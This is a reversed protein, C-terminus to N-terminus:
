NSHGLLKPQSKNWGQLPISKFGQKVPYYIGYYLADIMDTDFGTISKALEVYGCEKHNVYITKKKLFKRFYKRFFLYLRKGFPITKSM